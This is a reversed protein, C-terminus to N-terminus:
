LKKALHYIDGAGMTIILDNPLIEIKIMEVATDFDKAFSVDKHHKKTEKVLIESKISADFNERAAYIPTIIVKDASEFSKALDKLFIKTRSYLHPEFVVVIRKEPFFDKFGKLTAKIESPHHAYDDYLLAGNPLTKIFESRRWTGEFNNLSDITKNKDLDLIDAVAMIAAANQINHEGPVSLNFDNNTYKTYDIIKSKANNIVPKISPHSPDCVVYGNEDIKEVLEKFASQIDVLDKYYDLHDEEINTIVLINPNLNLFSRKYECAEVIFYKSKGSVFNSKEKKLLSGVITTPDCKADSLVQSAMATTTTKGHTGAFAITYKGKSVLGLAEPYSLAPIQRERALHLEINDALVAPSYIVLDTDSDLNDKSHGEFVKIGIKELDATIESRETNSGRVVKGENLMLRAIASVGIGGIGICHVKKIKKLDIDM